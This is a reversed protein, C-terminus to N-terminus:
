DEAGAKAPQAGVRPFTARSSLQVPMGQPASATGQPLDGTARGWGQRETDLM